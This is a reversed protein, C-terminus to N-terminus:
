RDWERRKLNLGCETCQYERTAYFDWAYNPRVFGGELEKPKGPCKKIRIGGMTKEVGCHDCKMKIAQFSSDESINHLFFTGPVKSELFCLEGCIRFQHICRNQQKQNQQKKTKRKTKSCMLKTHKAEM